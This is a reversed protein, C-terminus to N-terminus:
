SERTTQFRLGTLEATDLGSYQFHAKSLAASSGQTQERVPHEAQSSPTCLSQIAM